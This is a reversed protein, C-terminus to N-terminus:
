PSLTDARFYFRKRLWRHQPYVTIRYHTVLNKGQQLECVSRWQGGSRYELLEQGQLCHSTPDRGSLVDRRVAASRDVAQFWSLCIQLLLWLTGFGVTTLIASM